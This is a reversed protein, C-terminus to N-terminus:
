LGLPVYGHQDSCCGRRTPSLGEGLLEQASFIQSFTKSPSIVSASTLTATQRNKGERPRPWRRGSTPTAMPPLRGIKKARVHAHGKPTTARVLAHVDKGQRPRPPERGAPSYRPSVQLTRHRRKQRRRRPRKGYRPRGTGCTPRTPSL